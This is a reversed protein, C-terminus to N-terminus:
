RRQMEFYYRGLAKTLNEDLPVHVGGIWLFMGDRMQKSIIQRRM